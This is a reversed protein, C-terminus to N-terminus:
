NKADNNGAYHFPCKWHGNVKRGSYQRAESEVGHEALMPNVSGSYSQDRDLITTRMGGYKGSERLTEFQDHLNFVLTPTLFRRAKRSANPHLGVVFYAEEGFSLSFDPGDPDHSVRGDYRNGYVVDKDSLSQVRQWLYREFLEESLYRPGEFIVVFSQYMKPHDKYRRSFKFIKEAIELDNRSSRIDSAIVVEMQDKALTAKAGVCPFAKQEIFSRFAHDLTHHANKGMMDGDYLPSVDRRSGEACQRLEELM